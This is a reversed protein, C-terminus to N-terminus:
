KIKIQHHSKNKIIEYLPFTYLSALIINSTFVGYHRFIFSEFNNIVLWFTILSLAIIMLPEYYKIALKNQYISYPVYFYMALILLLGTIGYALLADFYSNHMHRLGKIVSKKMTANQFKESNIIVLGSTKTDTGLIPHKNFWDIAEIWSNIRIGISTMPINNLNGNILQSITNNETEITRNEITKNSLLIIALTPIIVCISILFKININKLGYILTYYIPLTVASVSIALWAQRSQTTLLIFSLAGIIIAASIIELLYLKFYNHKFKLYGISLLICVGSFMSTYMSNKINFDVRYGQYAHIVELIFNDSNIICAILFGIIYAVWLMLVNKMSGKLWYAYGLFLCLKTLRELKPGSNAFEPIYILSNIWSLIQVIIFAGILMFIPNKLFFKREFYFLFLTGFIIIGRFLGSVPTFSVATFSYMILTILMLNDTKKSYFVQRIFHM